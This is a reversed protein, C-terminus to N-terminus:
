DPENKTGNSYVWQNRQEDKDRRLVEQRTLSGLPSTLDTPRMSSFGRRHLEDKIEGSTRPTEFYGTRRLDMVVAKPSVGTNRRPEAGEDAPEGADSAEGSAVTPDVVEPRTARRKKRSRSPPSADTVKAEIMKRSQDELGMAKGQLGALGAMTQNIGQQLVKGQEYDGEFKFTLKEISMEFKVKNTAM